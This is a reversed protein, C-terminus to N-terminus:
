AKPSFIKNSINPILDLVSKIVANYISVGVTGIIFGFFLRAYINVILESKLFFCASFGFIYVICLGLSAPIKKGEEMNMASKITKKIGDTVVSSIAAYFLVQQFLETFLETTDM